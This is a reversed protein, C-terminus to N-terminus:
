EEGGEEAKYPEPLPQWALVEGGGEYCEFYSGDDGENYFTTKEVTGYKTTILVEQGDEPLRCDFISDLYFAGYEEYYIKEEETLPRTKIPIWEGKNEAPSYNDVIAGLTQWIDLLYTICKQSLETRTSDEQNYEYAIDFLEHIKPIESNIEEVAQRSILDGKNESLASIAVKVADTLSVEDCYDTYECTSHLHSDYCQKDEPCEGCILWVELRKKAEENTMSEEYKCEWRSCSKTKGDESTVYNKCAECNREM